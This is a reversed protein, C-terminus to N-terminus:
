SANGCRKCRCRGRIALSPSHVRLLWRLSILFRDIVPADDCTPADGSSHDPFSNCKEVM